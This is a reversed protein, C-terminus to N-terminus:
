LRNVSQCQKFPQSRSVRCVRTLYLSLFMIQKKKPADPQGLHFNLASSISYKFVSCMATSLQSYYLNLAINILIGLIIYYQIYPFSNPYRQILCCQYLHYTKYLCVGSWTRKECIWPQIFWKFSFLHIILLKWRILLYIMSCKWYYKVRVGSVSAM